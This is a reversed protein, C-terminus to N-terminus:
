RGPSTRVAMTITRHGDITSSEARETLGRIIAWSLDSSPDDEPTEDEEYATTLRAEVMGATAVIEMRLIAAAPAAALLRNCAEGVALRLDDVVDIPAETRAAVNAAVTRLIAVSDAAAPATVTIAREDESV